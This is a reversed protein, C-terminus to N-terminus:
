EVLKLTPDFCFGRKAPNKNVKELVSIAMSEFINTKFNQNSIDQFAKKFYSVASELDRNQMYLSGISLDIQNPYRFLTKKEELKKILKENEEKSRKKTRPLAIFSPDLILSVLNGLVPDKLRRATTLYDYVLYMSGLIGLPYLKPILENGEGSGKVGYLYAATLAGAALSNIVSYDALKRIINDIFSM